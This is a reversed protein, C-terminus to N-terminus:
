SRVDTEKVDQSSGRSIREASLSLTVNTTGEPIMPMLTRFLFYVRAMLTAMASIVPNLRSM